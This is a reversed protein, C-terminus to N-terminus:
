MLTISIIGKFSFAKATLIIIRQTKIDLQALTIIAVAVEAGMMMEILMVTRDMALIMFVKMVIRDIRETTIVMRRKKRGVM